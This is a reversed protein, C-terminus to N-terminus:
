FNNETYIHSIVQNMRLNITYLLSQAHTKTELPLIVLYSYSEPCTM